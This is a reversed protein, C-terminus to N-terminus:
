NEIISVIREGFGLFVPVLLSAGSCEGGAAEWNIIDQGDRDGEWQGHYIGGCRPPGPEFDWADTIIHYEGTPEVVFPEPPVPSGM